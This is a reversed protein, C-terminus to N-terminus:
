DSALNGHGLRHVVPAASVVGRRPPKRAATKDDMLVDYAAAAM